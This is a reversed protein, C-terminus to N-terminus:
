RRPKFRAQKGTMAAARAIKSNAGRLLGLQLSREVRLAARVPATRTRNLLAKAAAVSDPSRAALQAILKEAEEQPDAAVETVLGIQKAYTGDFTEGTMVLRKATDAGVLERLTVSGTMDPILGWKAELIALSCDPTAFRFDAALALQMAGGYCHGHLVAVVPIPLTRWEWCVRQFLNTARWPWRVFALALRSPRKLVSAFDLGSSFAPGDGLLIAARVSRDRRLTRAADVLQELMALDLGNLKDSRTLRVYAIQERVEVEVRRSQQETPM